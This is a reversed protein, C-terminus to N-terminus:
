CVLRLQPTPGLFREIWLQNTLCTVTQVQGYRFHPLAIEHSQARLSHSRNSHGSLSLWFQVSNYSVWTTDGLNQSNRIYPFVGVCKTVLLIWHQSHVSFSFAKEKCNGRFPNLFSPRFSASSWLTMSVTVQVRTYLTEKYLSLQYSSLIKINKRFIPTITM